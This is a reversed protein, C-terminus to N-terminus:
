CEAERAQAMRWFFAGVRSRAPLARGWAKTVCARPYFPPSAGQPPAVPRDPLLAAAGQSAGAPMGRARVLRPFVAEALCSQLLAQDSLVDAVSQTALAPVFFEDVDFFGVRCVAPGPIPGCVLAPRVHTTPLARGGRQQGRLDAEAGVAVAGGGRARGKLREYCM